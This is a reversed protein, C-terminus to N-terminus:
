TDQAKYPREGILWIDKKRNLIRQLWAWRMMKKMYLYTDKEFADIQLSLNMYKITYYPNVSFSNGDYEALTSKINFRARYRPKGLRIKVPEEIDHCQLELYLDYIDEQLHGKKLIKNLNLRTSFSYRNLGYKRETKKKLFKLD